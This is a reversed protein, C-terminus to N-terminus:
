LSETGYSSAMTKRFYKVNSFFISKEPFLGEKSSFYLDLIENYKSDYLIMVPGMMSELDHLDGTYFQVHDKIDPYYYKDVLRSKLKQNVYFLFNNGHHEFIIDEICANCNVETLIVLIVFRYPAPEIFIHRDSHLYKKYIEVTKQASTIKNDYDRLRSDLRSIFVGLGIFLVVFVSIIRKM